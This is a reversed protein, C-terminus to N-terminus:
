NEQPLLALLQQVQEITLGTVQAIEQVIMGRQLLNLAIEERTRQAAKQEWSTVIEM